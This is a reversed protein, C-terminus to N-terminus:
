LIAFVKNSPGSETAVRAGGEGGLDVRGPTLIVKLGDALGFEIRTDSMTVQMGGRKMSITGTEAEVQIGGEKARVTVGDAGKAFITNGKDDYLVASGPPSSLPRKDSDYGIARLRDSSGVREFWGVAGVPPVSSFGHPQDRLVGTFREGPYGEVTLTQGRKSDDVAVIRGRTFTSAEGFETIM